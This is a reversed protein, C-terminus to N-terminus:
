GDFHTREGRLAIPNRGFQRQFAKAFAEPSAYGYRRSVAKVRHGREVDQRALTMRWHRLYAQPTEDLHTSFVEAFRSLSLGCIDALEQNRWTRGPNDHIAVIGKSLLPHSLGALLGTKAAGREIESRLLRIILVEGLRSLVSGVGCRGAEAEAMLLRLLLATEGHDASLSVQKPLAMVLPNADGGLDARAEILVVEDPRPMILCGHPCFEIRRPRRGAEEGLIALNGAGNEVVSVSIEFRSILVSLRDFHAM